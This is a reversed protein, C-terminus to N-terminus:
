DRDASAADGLLDSHMVTFYGILSVKGLVVSNERTRKPPRPTALALSGVSVGDTAVLM